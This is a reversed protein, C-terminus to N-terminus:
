RGSSSKIFAGYDSEAWRRNEFSFARISTYIPPILLALFPLWFGSTPRSVGNARDLRLVVYARRGDKEMEPEVRLYYSGEARGSPVRKGSADAKAGRDMAIAGTITASRKASTTLSAPTMSQHSGPEPLGLRQEPGYQDDSRCEVQGSKLTFVPTVFSPEGVGSAFTYHQQFM